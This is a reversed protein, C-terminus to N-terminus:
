PPFFLRLNELFQPRTMERNAERRSSMQYVFMLIGYTLLLPLQHKIMKVNRPDPIKKLRKLLVPLYRNMHGLVIATTKVREEREEATSHCSDIGNYQKRVLEEHYLGTQRLEERLARTKAKKEKRLARLDEKSYRPRTM